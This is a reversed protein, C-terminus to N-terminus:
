PTATTGNIYSIEGTAVEILAGAANGPRNPHWPMVVKDDYGLLRLAMKIVPVIDDLHTVVVIGGTKSLASGLPVKVLEVDLGDSFLEEIAYLEDQISHLESAIVTATQVARWECSSFFAWTCGARNSTKLPCLHAAVRRAQEVGEPDLMKKSARGHRIIALWTTKASIGNAM